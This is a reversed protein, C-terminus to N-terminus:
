NKKSSLASVVGRVKIAVIATMNHNQFGVTYEDPGIIIKLSIATNKYEFIIMKEKVTIHLLTSHESIIHMLAISADPYNSLFHILDFLLDVHEIPYKEDFGITKVQLNDNQIKVHFNPNYFNFVIDFDKFGNKKYVTFKTDFILRNEASKVGYLYLVFRQTPSLPIKNKFTVTGKCDFKLENNKLLSQLNNFLMEYIHFLEM